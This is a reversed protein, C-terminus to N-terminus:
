AESPADIRALADEVARRMRDAAKGTPAALAISSPATGTAVAARLIAVVISTKGTGPGGSVVALPATLAARVADVQEATLVVSGAPRAALEAMAADLGEPAARARRVRDALLAALRRELAHLREQYLHAGDIVLPRRDGARGFVRAIPDGDAPAKARAVLAGIAACPGAGFGLARAQEALWAADSPVRTSGRSLAEQTLLAVAVLALHEDESLSPCLRALEWALHAQAESLDARSLAERVEDPLDAPLSPDPGLGSAVRAAGHARYSM